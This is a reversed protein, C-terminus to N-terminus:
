MIFVLLHFFKGHHSISIRWFCGGWATWFSSDLTMWKWFNGLIPLAPPLTRIETFNWARICFHSWWPHKISFRRITELVGLCWKSILIKLAFPSMKNIGWFKSKHPVYRRFGYKKLCYGPKAYLLLHLYNKNKACKLLLVVKRYRM